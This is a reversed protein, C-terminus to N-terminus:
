PRRWPSRFYFLFLDLFSSVCVLVFLFFFFVFNFCSILLLPLLRNTWLQHRRAAGSRGKTWNDWERKAQAGHEQARGRPVAGAASSFPVRPFIVFTSTLSHHSRPPHRARPAHRPMRALPANREASSREATRRVKTVGMQVLSVDQGM